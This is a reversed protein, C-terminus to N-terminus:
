TYLRCKIDFLLVFKTVAFIGMADMCKGYFDILMYTFIGTGHITHCQNSRWGRVTAWWHGHFGTPNSKTWHTRLIELGLVQRIDKPGKCPHPTFSCIATSSYPRSGQRFNVHCISCRWTWFSFCVGEFPQKKKWQWTLKWPNKVIKNRIKTTYVHNFFPLLSIFFWNHNPKKLSQM